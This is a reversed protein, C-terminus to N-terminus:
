ESDESGSSEGSGGDGDAGAEEGTAGEGEAEAEEGEAVEAAAEEEELRLIPPPVVAMISAEPDTVLEVGSPLPLDAVKLGEGIGLASIDAELHDPVDTPFCAVKVEWLHHEVVGGEKVGHSEGVLEVPVDVTIQEDRRVALFDVHIFRGHIHDRQIERPLTLHHDKKVQLDILVNTGADTHLIHFLERADIAVPVPEMGHGYVVGPVMGAARLKRAAGKGHGERAEAKLKREM